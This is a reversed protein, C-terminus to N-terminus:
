ISTWYLTEVVLLVNIKELFANKLFKVNKSSSETSLGFIKNSGDHDRYDSVVFRNNNNKNQRSSWVGSEWYKSTETSWVLDLDFIKWRYLLISKLFRRNQDQSRLRTLGFISFTSNKKNESSLWVQKDGGYFTQNGWALDLTSVNCRHLLM